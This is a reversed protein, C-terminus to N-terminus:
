PMPHQKMFEWAPAADMYDHGGGSKTCLGVEVGANCQRHYQCNAAPEPAGTCGDLGAWKALNAEAGIFTVLAATGNPPITNVAGAYPVIPDGTSRFALAAIPRSPACPWDVDPMMDFASYAISAIMDAADCALKMSMGGGMSYGVSHIRKRDICGQASLQAVIARAFAVDDVASSSTCCIGVNFATDTGEPFAVIFGETESLEAFGSFARELSSSMLIGHFDLILPVPTQGTYSGPVHLIFRRSLSGVQVTQTTEGGPLTSPTPCTQPPDPMPEATTGASGASGDQGALALSGAAGPASAGAQPAIAGASGLQSGGAGSAGVPTGNAGASGSAGPTVPAPSPAGGFPAVGSGASSAGPTQPMGMSFETECGIACLAALVVVLAHTRPALVAMVTFPECGLVARDRADVTTAVSSSVFAIRHRVPRRTPM